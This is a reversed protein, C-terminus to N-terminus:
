PVAIEAAPASISGAPRSGGSVGVGFQATGGSPDAPSDDPEAGSGARHFWQIGADAGNPAGIAAIGQLLEAHRIRSSCTQSDERLLLHVTRTERHVAEKDSSGSKVCVSAFGALAERALALYSCCGGVLTSVSGFGVRSRCTMMRLVSGASRM